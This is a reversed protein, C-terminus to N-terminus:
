AANAPKPALKAAQAAAAQGQDANQASLESAQQGQAQAADRGLAHALLADDQDLIHQQYTLAATGAHGKAAIREKTQNAERKAVFSLVNGQEKDNKHRKLDQVMQTLQKNMQELKAMEPNGQTSFREGDQYGSLACIEKWVEGLNVGPPPKACIKAFADVAYVFRALKATPDTSGMGVNVNTTLEHDLMDDTVQDVGFKQLVQAKQGAIALVTADTEYHQELLVLQRLVPIIGTIAFTVLMYETMESAPGQLMRISAGSERPAGAQHLQMPNFNGVLDDFAQRKRDEEQYSSATVDPSTMEELDEMNDVNTVGGPVNRFLSNTDVNTGRKVKYRKNLVLLVNDNRQNEVNNIGDQLPKVLAPVPTVLVKHTEIMALGMVYPRKGHFVTKELHEPETLMKGNNLTWFEWDNGDHRHIHHQVWAIDYDSVTRNEQAPDQQNGLRASRTSDDPNESRIDSTPYETWQRGKPDPHAMREKIEGVYMPVLEIWYPSTNVPDMWSASPDFRFNELPKLEVCPEDKSVVTNGRADKRTKYDWRIHFVAAGQNQADQIGGIVCRFWPITHTLRYQVLEKMLAASLLQKQDAENMATINTLDQNSFFAKAAAAENKRIVTRTVPVFLHSRKKFNEGNYKSDGPHQNNFARLSDDLQQRFNSDMYTTSFRFADKARQEWDPGEPERPSGKTEEKEAQVGDESESGLEWLNAQARRPDRIAPPQPRMPKQVGGSAPPDKIAPSQPRMGSNPETEMPM